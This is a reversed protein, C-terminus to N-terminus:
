AWEYPRRLASDRLPITRVKSKGKTSDFLLHQFLEDVDFHNQMSLHIGALMVPAPEQLISSTTQDTDTRCGRLGSPVISM